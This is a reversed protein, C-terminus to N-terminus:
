TVTVCKEFYYTEHSLLKQLSIAGGGRIQIYAKAMLEYHTSITYSNYSYIQTLHPSIDRLYPMIYLGLFLCTVSLLMVRGIHFSLIHERRVVESMALMEGCEESLIPPPKMDM